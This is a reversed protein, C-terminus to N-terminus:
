EKPRRSTARTSTDPGSCARAAMQGAFGTLKGAAVPLGLCDARLGCRASPWYPLHPSHPNLHQATAASKVRVSVRQATQLAPCTSRTQRHDHDGSCAVPSSPWGSPAALVCQHAAGGPRHVRPADARSGLTASKDSEGRTCAKRCNPTYTQKGIIRWTASRGTGDSTVASETKLARLALRTIPDSVGPLAARIGAIRFTHGTHHRVFDSVRDQKTGTSRSSSVRRELQDYARDLILTFYDLWPWPDHEGTHWGQTSVPLAAHYADADEALGTLLVPHHWRDGALDTYFFILESVFFETQAAPVPAFRVAQSGLVARLEDEVEFGQRELLDLVIRGLKVGSQGM